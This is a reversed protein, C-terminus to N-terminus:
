AQVVQRIHDTRPRADAGRDAVLHGEPDPHPDPHPLIWRGATSIRGSPLGTEDPNCGPTIFMSLIWTSQVYM